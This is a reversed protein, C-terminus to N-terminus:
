VAKLPISIQISTGNGAQSNINFEAHISEARKRMNKLGNGFSNQEEMSIGKGNDSVKMEVKSKDALLSISAETAQAHKLMNTLAEKLILLLNRKVEPNIVVNKPIKEPETFDLKLKIDPNEDFLKSVYNRVFAFVNELTDNAPNITWVIEGLNQILEDSASSIKATTEKMATEEKAKSLNRSMLKIKTLGSGIEDHIDRSIRMRINEIERQKELQAIKQKYRLSLFFRISYFLVAVIFFAILWKFWKTQWWAPVIQIFLKKEPSSDGTRYTGARIKLHYDGPTLQSFNLVRTRGAVSWNEDVGELLYSYVTSAPNTFNTAAFEITLNNETHSLRLTDLEDISNSFSSTKGNVMLSTFHVDLPKEKKSLQRPSFSYVGKDYSFVISGDTLYQLSQPITRVPLGEQMTFHTFSKPSPNFNYLGISATLWIQGANDIVISQLGDLLNGFDDKIFLTPEKNNDICVLGNNQTTVWLQGSKDLAMDTAGFLSAYRVDSTNYHEFENIATNLKAVGEYADALYINNHEDVTIKNIAIVPCSRQDATDRFFAKLINEHYNHMILGRGHCALWINHNKDETIDTIYLSRDPIKLSTFVDALKFQKKIEDFTYIGKTTGIWILGRSDKFLSFPEALVRDADPISYIDTTNKKRDYIYLSRHAYYRVGYIKGSAEDVIIKGVSANVWLPHSIFNQKAPNIHSLGNVAGFWVIGDEDKFIYNTEANVVTKENLSDRIFGAFIKKETDFAAIGRNTALWFTNRDRHHLDLIINALNTSSSSEFTYNICEESRKDFHVLGSGWTSLWLHNKDSPDAFFKMPQFTKNGAASLKSEFVDVKNERPNYHVIKRHGMLWFTGDSDEIMSTFSKNSTLTVRVTDSIAAKLETFVNNKLDYKLMGFGNTGAWINNGSDEFVFFNEFLNITRGDGFVIPIRTFRNNKKDYICLGNFTSVWLRGESDILLHNISNSPLATSDSGSSKYVTFDYGNFRHLGGMTGLWLFGDNDKAISRVNPDSLGNDTTYNTFFYQQAFTNQFFVQMLLVIYVRIRSKMFYFYLPLIFGNVSVSIQHGTAM